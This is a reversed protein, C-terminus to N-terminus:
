RWRWCPRRWLAPASYSRGGYGRWGAAAGALPGHCLSGCRQGGEPRCLGEVRLLRGEPAATIGLIDEFPMEGRWVVGHWSFSEWGKKAVAEPVLATTLSGDPQQLY